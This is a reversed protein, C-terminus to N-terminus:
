RVERLVGWSSGVPETVFGCTHLQKAVWAAVESSTMTDFSKHAHVTLAVQFMIDILKQENTPNYPMVILNKRRLLAHRVTTDM